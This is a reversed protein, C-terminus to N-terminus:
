EISTCGTIYDRKIIFYTIIFETINTNHVDPFQGNIGTNQSPPALKFWLFMQWRLNNERWLIYKWQENGNKDPDHAGHYSILGLETTGYGWESLSM